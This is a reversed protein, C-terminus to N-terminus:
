IKEHTSAVYPVVLVDARVGKQALDGNGCEDQVRLVGPTAM